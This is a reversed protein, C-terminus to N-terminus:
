DFCLVCTSSTTISEDALAPSMLSALEIGPNSLDGPLPCPLESWCKQRSFGIILPAQCAVTWLTASDFVVSTVWYWARLRLFVRLFQHKDNCNLLLKRVCSKMEDQYCGQLTLAVTEWTESYSFCVEPLRGIVVSSYAVSKGNGSSTSTWSTSGRVPRGLEVGTM